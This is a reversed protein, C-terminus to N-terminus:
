PRLWMFSTEREQDTLFWEAIGHQKTYADVAPVVGRKHPRDYDHGAVVGGQKVKRSWLILDLLVNDFDHAADIYVFDLSGDPVQLAAEVSHAKVITANYPALRARAGGELKRSWSTDWSDVCLLECDPINQLMVESHVGGAVGVEAGKRLGMLGIIRSVDVRQMGTVRVPGPTFRDIGFHERLLRCLMSPDASMPPTWGLKKLMHTPSGWHGINRVTGEAKGQYYEKKWRGDQSFNLGHRIDVNPRESQYRHTRVGKYMETTPQEVALSREVQELLYERYAVIHSLAWKGRAPLYESQGPAWYYRNQNYDLRDKVEPVHAFHQPCYAVDHECLYVISGPEVAELGAKIQEYISHNARPKEGVCINHGFEMPQQSVSIIPILGGTAKLLNKQVARMLAPDIHHDTYYVIARKIGDQQSQYAEWGPVPSFKDIIWRFPREQHEFAADNFYYNERTFKHAKAVQRGDMPYTFGGEDRRFWHAQWAGKNVIQSGGCLWTRLSVEIGVNGWSGVREDLLGIYDNWERECFWCSGQGTMVEPYEAQAEPRKRYQPWFHCYLDLGIHMFHTYGRPKFEWKHVDLRRMEPLVVTKPPCHAKLTEDYGESMLAHADIKMVYQGTSERVGLNYAARQGISKDLVIIKVRPDDSVVMPEQGPGDVVAVVEIDGRARAIASDVTQQFYPECRGPIIVSVRGKVTEAM